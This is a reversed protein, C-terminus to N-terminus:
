ISDPDVKNENFIPLFKDIIAQIIANISGPMSEPLPWVVNDKPLPWIFRSSNPLLTNIITEDYAGKFQLSSCSTIVLVMSYIEIACLLFHGDMGYARHVRTILESSNERYGLLVTTDEPIDLSLVKKYHPLPVVRDGSDVLVRMFATKVAWLSLLKLQEKDLLTKKSFILNKLIKSAPVEIKESMWGNNCRVCVASITMDFPTQGRLNRRVPKEQNFTSMYKYIKLCPVSKKMWKPLVHEKTIKVDNASTNCFICRKPTNKIKM